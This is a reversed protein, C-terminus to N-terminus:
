SLSPFYNKEIGSTPSKKKNSLINLTIPLLFTIGFFVFSSVFWNYWIIVTILKYTKTFLSTVQTKWDSEDMKGYQLKLQQINERFLAEEEETLLDRREELSKKGNRRGIRILNEYCEDFKEQFALYRPSEILLFYSMIAVILGPISSLGLM